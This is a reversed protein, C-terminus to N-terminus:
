MEKLLDRNRLAIYDVYKSGFWEGALIYYGKGCRIIDLGWTYDLVNIITAIHRQKRGNAPVVQGLYVKVGKSSQLTDYCIGIYTGPDPREKIPGRRGKLSSVTLRHAM